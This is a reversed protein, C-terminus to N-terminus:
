NKVLKPHISPTLPIDVRAILDIFVDLMVKRARDSAMFLQIQREEVQEYTDGTKKEEGMEDQNRTSGDGSLGAENSEEGMKVKAVMLEVAASELVNGAEARTEKKVREQEEKRKEIEDGKEEEKKKAKDVATGDENVEECHSLYYQTTKDKRKAFQAVMMLFLYIPTANFGKKRLKAFDLM